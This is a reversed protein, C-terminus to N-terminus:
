AQKKSKKSSRVTDVRRKRNARDFHFFRRTKETIHQFTAIHHPETCLTQSNITVKHFAHSQQYGKYGLATLRQRIDSSPPKSRKSTLMWQAFIWFLM